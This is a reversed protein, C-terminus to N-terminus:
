NSRGLYDVVRGEGQGEGRLRPSPFSGRGCPRSLTPTLARAFKLRSTVFQSKLIKVEQDKSAM